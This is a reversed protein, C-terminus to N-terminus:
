EEENDAILGDKFRQVFWDTRTNYLNVTEKIRKLRFVVLELREICTKESIVESPEVFKNNKISVYIASQKLKDQEKPHEIEAKITKTDRFKPLNIKKAFENFNQDTYGMLRNKEQHNFFLNNFYQKRENDMLVIGSRKELALRVLIKAKATEENALQLLAYSTAYRKKELLIKADDILSSSNEACKSIGNEIEAISLETM